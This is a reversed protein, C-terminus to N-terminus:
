RLVQQCGALESATDATNVCIQFLLHSTGSAHASLATDLRRLTGSVDAALWWVLFLAIAAAVGYKNAAQLAKDTM